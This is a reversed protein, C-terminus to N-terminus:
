GRGCGQLAISLRTGWAGGPVLEVRWHATVCTAQYSERFGEVGRSWSLIPALWLGAADGFQLRVGRNVWEDVLTVERAGTRTVTADPAFRNGDRDVEGYRGPAHGASAVLNSESAFWLSLPREGPNELTYEVDFGRAGAAFTLRKSVRVPRFEEGVWVGGERSLLVRAQREGAEVTVEYPQNVFDGQEGYRAAAFSAVDTEEALFHDVLARRLYWDCPLDTAEDHYRERRRSLTALLNWAAARDDLEFVQGGARHLYCNFAPTNVLVEDQGDGDFDQQAVSLGAGPAAIREAAVLNRYAECRLHSLYLGGFVGHWYPCNSQARYLHDQARAAEETAAPMRAVLDSVFLMKRYMLNSEPYRTLFNRWSGGSWEMMEPYSGAPLEIEGRSPLQALCDSLTTVQLWDANEALLQFFRELWRECYVTEHTRPWEGLKEGDDAFVAVRDGEGALRRLHEIAAAPPQWPIAARLSGNIPFVEIGGGDAGRATFHGLSEAEAIGARRFNNDDVLTYRVGARQLPGALGPEWVRETLWLGAPRVGFRRALWQSLKEIQGVKDRDPVMPLMPEYCGGTLMEVRGDAVLEAIAGLLEPRALEMWTLLPGSYHLVAKMHQARRLVELFPRYALECASAFVEPLNGVPQHNHLCFAFSMAGM